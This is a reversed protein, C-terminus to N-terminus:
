ELLEASACRFSLNDYEIEEVVFPREFGEREARIGLMSVQTWGGGLALKCKVDVVDRFVIKVGDSGFPKEVLFLWLDSKGSDKDVCISLEQVFEHDAMATNIADFRKV